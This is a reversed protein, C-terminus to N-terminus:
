SKCTIAYILACSALFLILLKIGFCIHAPTDTPEKIDDVKKLIEDCIQRDYVEALKKYSSSSILYQVIDAIFFAVLLILVIDAQYSLTCLCPTSKIILCIGGEGLALQRCTNSVIKTHTTYIGWYRDYVYQRLKEKNEGM